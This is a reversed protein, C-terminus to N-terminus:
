RRRVAVFTKAMRSNKPRRRRKQFEYGWIAFVLAGVGAAQGYGYSLAYDREPTIDRLLVETHVVAVLMVLAFWAAALIAAMKWPKM